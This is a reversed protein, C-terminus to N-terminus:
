AINLAPNTSDHVLRFNKFDVAGLDYVCIQIVLNLKLTVITRKEDFKLEKTEDPDQVYYVFADTSEVKCSPYKFIGAKRLFDIVHGVTTERSILGEDVLQHFLTNLEDRHPVSGVLDFCTNEDIFCEAQFIIYDKRIRNQGWYHAAKISEEWFYYGPSLWADDKDCLIPGNEAIFENNNKFTLTHYVNKVM